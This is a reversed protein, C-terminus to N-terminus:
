LLEKNKYHNFLNLGKETVIGRIFHELLQLQVEFVNFQTHPFVSTDFGLQFEALRFRAMAEIDFDNRYLGEEVGQKLNRLLHEMLYGEEHEKVIQWAKPHYKQLDYIIAPNMNRMNAKIFRSIRMLEEVPNESKAFIDKECVTKERDLHRSAVMCVIEDKDSFFQYITKKSVALHRAIDDMSVSRFGYQLFLEEAAGLIRDKVEM